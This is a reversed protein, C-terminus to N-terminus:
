VMNIVQGYTYQCMHIHQRFFIRFLLSCLSFLVRRFPLSRCQGPRLRGHENRKGNGLAPSVRNVAKRLPFMLLVACGMFNLIGFWITEPPIIILTVLSIIFGYMLISDIKENGTAVYEGSNEM